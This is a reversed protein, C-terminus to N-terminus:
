QVKHWKRLLQDNPMYRFERDDYERHDDPRDLLIMDGSRSVDFSRPTSDTRISLTAEEASAGSASQSHSYQYTWTSADMWYTGYNAVSQFTGGSTRHFTAIVVGDHNSWHGGIQPPRLVVGDVHWEVLDWTGELQARMDASAQGQATGSQQTSLVLATLVAVALTLRYQTRKM